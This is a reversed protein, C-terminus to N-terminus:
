VTMIVFVISWKATEYLFSPIWIRIHVGERPNSGGEMPFYNREIVALKSFFTM